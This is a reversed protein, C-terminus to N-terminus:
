QRDDQKGELVSIRRELETLGADKLVGSRVSCIYGLCRASEMRIKLHKESRVRDFTALKEARELMRLIRARERQVDIIVGGVESENNKKEAATAM